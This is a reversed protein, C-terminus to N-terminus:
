PDTDIGDREQADDSNDELRSKRIPLELDAIACEKPKVQRFNPEIVGFILKKKYHLSGNLVRKSDTISQHILSQPKESLLGFLNKHM